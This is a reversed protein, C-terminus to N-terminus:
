NGNYRKLLVDVQDMTQLGDMDLNASTNIITRCKDLLLMAECLQLRNLSHIKSIVPPKFTSKVEAWVPNIFGREILEKFLRGDAEHRRKEEDTVVTAEMFFVAYTIFRVDLETFDIYSQFSNGNIITHKITWQLPQDMNVEKVLM